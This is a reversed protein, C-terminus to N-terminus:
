VELEIEAHSMRPRVDQDQLVGTLHVSSLVEVNEDTVLCTVVDRRTSVDVATGVPSVGRWGKTQQGTLASPVERDLARFSAAKQAPADGQVAAVAHQHQLKRM